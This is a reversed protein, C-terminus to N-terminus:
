LGARQNIPPFRLTDGVKLRRFNTLHNAKAVELYYAPNGYIRYAMLPLTDGKKVQRYHTLDPSNKGEEAARKQDDVNEAFIAKLKARLPYGDPKFLTYSIEASKLICESILSGWSIKLYNPRHTDSNIKAALELFREITETVDQLGASAGTGDFLFDFSYEQPPILEFKQNSGTTGKGSASDYKIEYKRSYTSPNFMVQFEGIKDSEGYDISAYAEIKLKKLEGEM